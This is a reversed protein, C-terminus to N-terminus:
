GGLLKLLYNMLAALFKSCTPDAECQQLAALLNQFFGGPAGVTAAAQEIMEDSLSEAMSRAEAFSHGNKVLHGTLKIRVWQHAIPHRAGATSQGAAVTVSAGCATQPASSCVSASSAAGCASAQGAAGCAAQSVFLRFPREGAMIRRIPQASADAALFAVLLVPFLFKKM